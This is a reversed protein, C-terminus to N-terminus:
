GDLEPKGLRARLRATISEVDVASSQAASLLETLHADDEVITKKPAAYFSSAVEFCTVDYADWVDEDLYYRAESAYIRFWDGELEVAVPESKVRSPEQSLSVKQDGYDTVARWRLIGKRTAELLVAVLENDTSTM